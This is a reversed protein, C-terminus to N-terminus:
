LGIGGQSEGKLFSKIASSVAKACTECEEWHDGKKVCDNIVQVLDAGDIHQRWLANV